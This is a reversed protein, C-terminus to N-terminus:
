LLESYFRGIQGFRTRLDAVEAGPELRSYYGIQRNFM